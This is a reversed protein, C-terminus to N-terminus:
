IQILSLPVHYHMIPHDNKTPPKPIDEFKLHNVDSAYYKLTQYNRYLISSVNEARFELGAKAAFQKILPQLSAYKYKPMTPFLHHELQYQMGGWLYESIFDGCLADRTTNFQCRVFNYQGGAQKEPTYMEESQHTATVIVGVLGGGLLISFITVSLPLFSLWIYSLSMMMLEKYNRHAWAYQVSQIRWSVYLFAAAPYFYIHQLRRMKVDNDANPFFLHFMPDNAIDTDIGLYNTYVHHTNHKNSWWSPSFGNILGSMLKAMYYCYGGRGHTYDHGIWGAQQMCVGICLIALIPHGTVGLYTGLSALTYVSLLYFLEWKVDRNFWGQEELQKRFERFLVIDKDLVRTHDNELEPTSVVSPLRNLREVAEKSHLSYFADTADEGNLYQLIQAGGPHVKQWQTLDYWKNDIKLRLTKKEASM